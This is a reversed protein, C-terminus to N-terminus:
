KRKSENFLIEKEEKTLGEYGKKSIKELIADVREQSAAKESRYQDDDMQQVEEQSYIKMKPKRKFWARFGALWKDFRNMFNKPSNVNIISLAGFLAGGLHAYHAVGDQNNVAMLDYLVYAIGLVIIPMRILGFFYVTLKPRLFAVAMFIAYVAGSAGVVPAASGGTFDPLLYYMAVHTIYGVIGGLLYTSLLRREGLLQVFIRAMFFLAIMNFLFHTFSYHTFMQTFVSWPQYMLEKPNGPGALKYVVTEALGNGTSSYGGQLLFLLSITLFIITNILILVGLMGNQKYLNKLYQFIGQQM